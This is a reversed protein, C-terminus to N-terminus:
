VNKVNIIPFVNVFNKVQYIQIIAMQVIQYVIEATQFPFEAARRRLVLTHLVDLDLAIVVDKHVPNHFRDIRMQSIGIEINVAQGGFNADAAHLEVALHLLNRSQRGAFEEAVEAHFLSCFQEALACDVDSLDGVTDSVAVRAIKGVDELFM